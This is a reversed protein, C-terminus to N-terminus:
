DLLQANIVASAEIAEDREQEAKRTEIKLKEASFSEPNKKLKKLRNNKANIKDQFKEKTEVLASVEPSTNEKMMKVVIKRQDGDFKRDSLYLDKVLPLSIEPDMWDLINLITRFTYTQQCLKTLFEMGTQPEGTRILIWAAYSRIVQSEKDDAMRNKMANQVAATHAATGHFTLNLIGLTAWYRNGLYPDQLSELFLPLHDANMEVSRDAMDMYAALPYHEPDRVFEYVTLGHKKAEREREAEPLYGADFIKLQWARLAAQMKRIQAAHETQEALNIVNDYDENYLYLENLIRGKRIEYANFFKRALTFVQQSRIQETYRNGM